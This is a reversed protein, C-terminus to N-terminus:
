SGPLYSLVGRGNGPAPLRAPAPCGAARSCTLRADARAAVIPQYGSEWLGRIRPLVVPHTGPVAARPRRPDRAPRGATESALAAAPTRAWLESNRGPGGPAIRGPPYGTPSARPPFVWSFATEPDAGLLRPAMWSVFYQWRGPCPLSTSPIGTPLNAAPRNPTPTAALTVAAHCPHSM